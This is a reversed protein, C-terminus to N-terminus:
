PYHSRNWAASHGPLAPMGAPANADVQAAHHSFPERRCPHRREWTDRTRLADNLQYVGWTWPRFRFSPQFGMGDVRTGMSQFRLAFGPTPPDPRRSIYPSRSSRRGVPRLPLPLTHAQCSRRRVSNQPPAIGFEGKVSAPAIPLTDGRKLRIRPQSAPRLGGWAAGRM